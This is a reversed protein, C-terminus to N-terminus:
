DARFVGRLVEDLSEGSIEVLEDGFTIDLEDYDEYIEEDHGGYMLICVRSEGEASYLELPLEDCEEEVEIGTIVWTYGYLNSARLRVSDFDEGSSRDAENYKNYVVIRLTSKAVKTSEDLEITWGDPMREKLDDLDETEHIFPASVSENLHETLMQKILAKAEERTGSFPYPVEKYIYSIDNNIM